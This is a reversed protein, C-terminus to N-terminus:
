VADMKKFQRDTIQEEKIRRVLNAKLENVNKLLNNKAVLFWQQHDEKNQVKKEEEFLLVMVKMCYCVAETPVIYSNVETIDKSNLKEALKLAEEKEKETDQKEFRIVENM